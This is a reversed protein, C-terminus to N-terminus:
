PNGPIEELFVRPVTAVLDLSRLTIRIFGNDEDLGIVRGELGKYPGDLISVLAQMPIESSVMARLKLRMSEVQANSIVSLYRIKHPGQQTSMVQGVYPLKELAYYAVEDLGTAVFVYGEMLHIPIIKGDREYLSVPIFVPFDDDVDLDRRLSKELTGEIAKVEGVSTLEIAVWSRDDRVDGM